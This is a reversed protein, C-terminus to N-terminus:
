VADTIEQSRVESDTNRVGFDSMAGTVNLRMSVEVQYGPTGRPDYWREAIQRHLAALYEQTEQNEFCARFKESAKEPIPAKSYPKYPTHKLSGLYACAIAFCALMAACYRWAGFHM